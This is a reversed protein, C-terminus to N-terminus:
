GGSHFLDGASPGHRQLLVLQWPESPWGPRWEKKHFPPHCPPGGARHRKNTENRPSSDTHIGPSAPEFDGCFRSACCRRVALPWSASEPRPSTSAGQQRPWSNGACRCSSGGVCYCHCTSDTGCLCADNANALVCRAVLEEAYWACWVHLCECYLQCTASPLPERCSRTWLPGRCAASTVGADQRDDDSTYNRNSGSGAQASPTTAPFRACATTVSAPM